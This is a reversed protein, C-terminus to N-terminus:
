PRASVTFMTSFTMKQSPTIAITNKSTTIHQIQSTTSVYKTNMPYPINGDRSANRQRLLICTQWQILWWHRFHIKRDKTQSAFLVIKSSGDPFIQHMKGRRQAFFHDAYCNTAIFPRYWVKRIYNEKFETKKRNKLKKKLDEDWKINLAHRRTLEDISLEPNEELESLAALYDRTM